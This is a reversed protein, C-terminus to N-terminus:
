SIACGDGYCKKMKKIHFWPRRRNRAPDWVTYDRQCLDLAKLFGKWDLEPHPLDAAPGGLIVKALAPLQTKTLATEDLLDLIKVATGWERLRHLPGGYTLWPQAANVEAAEGSLDDLVDMDLELEEDIDNWYQVVRDDDTCLRIVVWVPLDRLPRLAQAIDGDSAEGDSAIVVCAKTGSARLCAANAAIQATVERIQKCLPTRGTPESCVLERIRALEAQSAADDSGVTTGVVVTQPGRGSPQNLLRFETYAGLEVALRAHWGIGEGLEEWRSCSILGERGGPGSMVRHGDQTGMSGSKDIIWFRYSFDRTSKVFQEALGLPMGMNRVADISEAVPRAYSQTKSVTPIASGDVGVVQAEVIGAM